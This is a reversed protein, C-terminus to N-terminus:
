IIEKNIKINKAAPQSDIAEVCDHGWIQLELFGNM